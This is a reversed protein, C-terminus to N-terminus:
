EWRDTPPGIVFLYADLIQAFCLPKKYSSHFGVGLRLMMMMMIEVADLIM